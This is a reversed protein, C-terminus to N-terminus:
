KCPIWTCNKQKIDYVIKSTYPIDQNEDAYMRKSLFAVSDLVHCAVFCLHIHVGCVCESHGFVVSHLM